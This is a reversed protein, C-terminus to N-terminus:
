EFAEFEGDRVVLVIPDYVADGNLDFSFRGLITDFGSIDEM